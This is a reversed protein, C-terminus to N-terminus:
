KRVKKFGRLKGAKRMLITLEDLFKNFRKGGGRMDENLGFWKRAPVYKDPIMSTSATKYGVNHIAGHKYSATQRKVTYTKKDGIIRSSKGATGTMQLSAILKNKKAPTKKTRRLSNAQRDKGRNILPRNSGKLRKTTEKLSALRGGTYDNGAKLNEQISNNVHTMMRNMILATATPQKKMMKALDYNKKIIANKKNRAM